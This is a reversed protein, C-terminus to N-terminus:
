SEEFDNLKAGNLEIHPANGQLQLVQTMVYIKKSEISTKAVHEMRLLLSPEASSVSDFHGTRPGLGVWPTVSIHRSSLTSALGKRTITFM